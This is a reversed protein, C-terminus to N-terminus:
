AVGNYTYGAGAVANKVAAEDFSGCLTIVGTGAEHDTVAESVFDLAELAQKM